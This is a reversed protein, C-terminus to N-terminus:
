QETGARDGTADAGQPYPATLRVVEPPTGPPRAVPTLCIGTQLEWAGCSRCRVLSQLREDEPVPTQCGPCRSPDLWERPFSLTLTSSGATGQEVPKLAALVAGAFQAVHRRVRRWSPEDHRCIRNLGRQVWEPTAAQGMTLLRSADEESGTSTEWDHPARQTAVTVLAADLDQIVATLEQLNAEYGPGFFQKRRLCTGLRDFTEQLQDHIHQEGPLLHRLYGFDFMNGKRVFRAMVTHTSAIDTPREPRAFTSAHNTPPV